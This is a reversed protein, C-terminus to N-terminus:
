VIECINCRYLKDTYCKQHFKHQENVRCRYMENLTGTTNCITCKIKRYVCILRYLGWILWLTFFVFFIYFIIEFSFLEM